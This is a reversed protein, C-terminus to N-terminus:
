IRTTKRVPAAKKVPKKAQEDAGSSDQNSKEEENLRLQEEPLLDEEQRTSGDDGEPGALPDFGEFLRGFQDFNRFLDQMQGMGFQDGRYPMVKYMPDSLMSSDFQFKFGQSLSDNGFFDPFNFSMGDGSELSEMMQQMQTLLETISPQSQASVCLPSQLLFFCFFLSKIYQM